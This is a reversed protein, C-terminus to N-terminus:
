LVEGREVLQAEEGARLVAIQLLGDLFVLVLGARTRGGGAALGVADWGAQGRAAEAAVTLAAHLHAITSLRIVLRPNRRNPPGTSTPAAPTKAVAGAEQAARSSPM